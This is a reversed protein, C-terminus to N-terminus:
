CPPSAIQQQSGGGGRWRWRWRWWRHQPAAAAHATLLDRAEHRAEHRGENERLLDRVDERLGQLEAEAHGGGGQGLGQGQGHQDDGLGCLELEYRNIKLQALRLDERVQRNYKLLSASRNDLPLEVRGDRLNSAFENVGLLQEPSM